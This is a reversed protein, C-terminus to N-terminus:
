IDGMVEKDTDMSEARDNFDPREMGHKNNVFVEIETRLYRPM